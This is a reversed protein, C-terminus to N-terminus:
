VSRRDTMVIAPVRGNGEVEVWTYTVKVINGYRRRVTDAAHKYISDGPQPVQPQVSWGRPQGKKGSNAFKWESPLELRRAYPAINAIVVSQVAGITGPEVAAGDVFAKHDAKYEGSELPSIAKLTDLAFTAIEGWYQFHFVANGFPDIKSIPRDKVGDVTQEYSTPQSERKVRDLESQVAKVLAAQCQERVGALVVTISRDFAAMRAM